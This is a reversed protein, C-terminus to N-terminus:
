ACEKRQQLQLRVIAFIFSHKHYPPWINTGETQRHSPANIHANIRAKGSISVPSSTPNRSIRVDLCEISGLTKHYELFYRHPVRSTSQPAISLFSAAFPFLTEVTNILDIIAWCRLRFFGSATETAPWGQRSIITESGLRLLNWQWSTQRYLFNTCFIAWPWISTNQWNRVQM